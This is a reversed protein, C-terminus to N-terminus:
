SPITTGTIWVSAGGTKWSDGKWTESGPEGPAPVTFTKWATQGSRADLAQVFGRIGLEGGSVGIMVEGRSSPALDHLLWEQLRWRRTGCVKGTKADLAVVHADLTALYVKDEYLGV